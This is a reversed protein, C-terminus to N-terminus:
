GAGYGAVAIGAAHERGEYRTAVHALGTQEGAGQPITGVVSEHALRPRDAGRLRPSPGSPSRDAQDGRTQEGCGRLTGPSCFTSQASCEARARPSRRGRGVAPSRTASGAGAPITGAPDVAPPGPRRSGVGAPISGPQAHHRRGRLPSPSSTDVEEPPHPPHSASRPNEANRSHGPSVRTERSGSPQSDRIERVETSVQQSAAIGLDVYQENNAPNRYVRTVWTPRQTAEDYFSVRSRGGSVPPTGAASHPRCTDTPRLPRDAGHGGRSRARRAAPRRAYRAPRHPRPLVRCAPRPPQLAARYACHSAARHTHCSAATGLPCPRTRAVPGCIQGNETLRRDPPQLTLEWDEERPSAKTTGYVQYMLRRGNQEPLSILCAPLLVAM